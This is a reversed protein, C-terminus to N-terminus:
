NNFLGQNFPIFYAMYNHFYLYMNSLTGDITDM